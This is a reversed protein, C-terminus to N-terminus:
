HRTNPFLKSVLDEALNSSFSTNPFVENILEKHALNSSLSVVCSSRQAFVTGRDLVILLLVNFPNQSATNQKLAKKDAFHM